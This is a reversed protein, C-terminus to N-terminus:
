RAPNDEGYVIRARRLRNKQIFRILRPAGVVGLAAVTAATLALGYALASRRLSASQAEDGLRQAQLSVNTSLNISQIADADAASHCGPCTNPDQQELITANEEYQLATNLQTILPVLDTNSAGQRQATQISQFAAVIDTKATTIPTQASVHETNMLLLVSSLLLCFLLALPQTRLTQKRRSKRSARTRSWYLSPAQERM